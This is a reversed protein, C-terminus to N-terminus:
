KFHNSICRPTDYRNTACYRSLHEQDEGGDAQSLKLIHFSFICTYLFFLLCLSIFLLFENIKSLHPPLLHQSLSTGPSITCSPSTAGPLLLPQPQLASSQQTAQPRPPLPQAAASAVSLAFNFPKVLSVSSSSVSTAVIQCRTCLLGSNWRQLQHTSSSCTHSSCSTWCGSACVPSFM